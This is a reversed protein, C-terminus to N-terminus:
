SLARKLSRKVFSIEFMPMTKVFKGEAAAKGTAQDVYYDLDEQTVSGNEVLKQLMQRDMTVEFSGPALDVCQWVDMSVNEAAPHALLYRYTTSAARPNACMKM